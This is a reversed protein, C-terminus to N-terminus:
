SSPSWRGMVVNMEEVRAVLKALASFQVSTLRLRHQKAVAVEIHEADITIELNHHRNRYVRLSEIEDRVPRPQALASKKKAKTKKRPAGAGADKLAQNGRRAAGALLGQRERDTPTRWGLNDVKCNAFNGDYHEPIMMPKNGGCFIALMLRDIRQETSSGRDNRLSVCLAGRREAPTLLKDRQGLVEGQDSIQYEGVVNPFVVRRWATDKPETTEEGLRPADPHAVYYAEVISGKLQGTAAQDLGQDIAWTRIATRQEQTGGWRGQETALQRATQAAKERAEPTHLNDVPTGNPPSDAPLPYYENVPNTM